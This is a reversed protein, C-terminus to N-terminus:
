GAATENSHSEPQDDSQRLRFAKGRNPDAKLRETLENYLRGRIERAEEKTLESGVFTAIRASRNGPKVHLSRGVERPFRKAIMARLARTDRLGWPSIWDIFWLRDGATWDEPELSNPSLLYSAETELTLWAWSCYARPAGEHELFCYQGHIAAPLVFRTQLAVPWSKHLESNSWLWFMKGCAEYLGRLKEADDNASMM